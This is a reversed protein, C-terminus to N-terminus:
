GIIRGVLTVSITGATFTGAAANAEAQILTPSYFFKPAPMVIPRWNSGATLVDTVGDGSLIGANLLGTASASGAANTYITGDVDAFTSSGSGNSAWGVDIDLAETGTDIDDAQFFGFLALFKAPTRFLEFIDGDEVNAAVSYSGHAVVLGGAYGHGFPSMKKKAFNGTLTEAVM